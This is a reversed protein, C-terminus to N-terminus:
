PSMIKECIIRLFNFSIANAYFFTFDCERLKGTISTSNRARESFILNQLFKSDKPLPVSTSPGPSYSGNTNLSRTHFKYDYSSYM